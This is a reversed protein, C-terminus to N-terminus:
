TSALPPPHTSRQAVAVSPSLFVIMNFELDAHISIVLQYFKRENPAWKCDTVLVLIHFQQLSHM